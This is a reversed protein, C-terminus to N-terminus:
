NGGKWCWNVYKATGNNFSGSSGFTYGDSNFATIAQSDTSVADTNNPFLKKTGGRVADVVANIYAANDRNKTWVFDPQFNMGTITKGTGNATYLNTDFHESPKKITTYAM